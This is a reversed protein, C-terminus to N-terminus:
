PRVRGFIPVWWALSERDVLGAAFLPERDHIIIEEEVIAGPAVALDPGGFVRVDSYVDPDDKKAPLDNLTKADLWHVVGRFHHNAGPHGTQGSALGGM